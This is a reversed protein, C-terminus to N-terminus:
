SKPDTKYTLHGLRQIKGSATALTIVVQEGHAEVQFTANEDGIKPWETETVNKIFLALNLLCVHVEGVFDERNDHRGLSYIMDQEFFMHTFGDKQGKFRGQELKVTVGQPIIPIIVRPFEEFFTHFATVDYM